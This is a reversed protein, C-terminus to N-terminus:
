KVAERSLEEPWTRGEATLVTEMSAGWKLAEEILKPGECVFVGEERRLARSQGLKKIRVMLPNQRSTIHEM